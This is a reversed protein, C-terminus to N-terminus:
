RASAGRGLRRKLEEVEARLRLVAAHEARLRESEEPPIQLSRLRENQTRLHELQTAEWRLAEAKAQLAHLEERQRVFGVAGAVAIGLSVLAAVWLATRGFAM